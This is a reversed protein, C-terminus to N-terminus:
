WRQFNSANMFSSRHVARNQLKVLNYLKYDAKALFLKAACEGCLVQKINGYNPQIVPGNVSKWNEALVTKVNGKRESFYLFRFHRFVLLFREYGSSASEGM